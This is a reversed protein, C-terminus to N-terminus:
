AGTATARPFLCTFVAGQGPESRVLIRGGHRHLIRFAIALGLGTGKGKPKTTFFPEFIRARVADTLGPGQDHVSIGLQDDGVPQATVLITGGAPMADRANDVLVHLARLAQTRDLPISGLGPAVFVSLAHAAGLSEATQGKLEELLSVPAHPEIPGDLRPSLALLQRLLHTGRQAATSISQAHKKVDGADMEILAVSGMIAAMVNNLDHAVAGMAEGIAAIKQAAEADSAPSPLGSM